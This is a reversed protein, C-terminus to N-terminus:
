QQEGQTPKDGEWPQPAMASRNRQLMTLALALEGLMPEDTRIADLIARHAREFQGRHEASMQMVLGHIMLEQKTM